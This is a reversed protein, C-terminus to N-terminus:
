IGIKRRVRNVKSKLKFGKETADNPDVRWWNNGDSTWHRWMTGDKDVLHQICEKGDQKKTGYEGDQPWYWQLNWCVTGKRDVSWKGLGVSPGQKNCYAQAQWKAGYYIGGKCGKWISTGGGYMKAVVNPDAAKAGRPKPDAIATNASLAFATCVGLITLKLM